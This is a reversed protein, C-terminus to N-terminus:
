VKSVPGGEPTWEVELKEMHTRLFRYADKVTRGKITMIERAIASLSVREGRDKIQNEAHTIYAMCEGKNKFLPKPGPRSGETQTSSDGSFEVIMADVTKSVLDNLAERIIPRVLNKFHEIVSGYHLDAKARVWVNLKEQAREPDTRELQEIEERENASLTYVMNLRNVAAILAPGPFYVGEIGGGFADRIRITWEFSRWTELYPALSEKDIIRLKTLDSM